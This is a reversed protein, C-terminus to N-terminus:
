PQGAAGAALQRFTLAMVAEMYRRTQPDMSALVSRVSALPHTPPLAYGTGLAGTALQMPTLSSISTPRPVGRSPSAGAPPSAAGSRSGHVLTLVAVVAVVLLVTGVATVIWARQMPQPRTTITPRVSM